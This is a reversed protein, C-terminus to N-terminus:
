KLNQIDIEEQALSAILVRKHHQAAFRLKTLRVVVFTFLWYEVPYRTALM